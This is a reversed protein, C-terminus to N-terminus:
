LVEQVFVAGASASTGLLGLRVEGPKPYMRYAPKDKPLYFGNSSTVAATGNNLRVYANKTQVTIDIFRARGTLTIDRASAWTSTPVAKLPAVSEGYGEM